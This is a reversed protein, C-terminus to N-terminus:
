RVNAFTGRLMVQDNGRRTGYQNFDQRAVGHARLYEGAPSESAINGAPSIHDTTVSDGGYILVRANTIESADPLQLPVDQFFPPEQIYTSATNWRYLDSQSTSLNNWMEGGEWIDEYAQLFMEPKIVRTITA